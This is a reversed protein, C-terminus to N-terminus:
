RKTAQPLWPKCPPRGVVVRRACGPRLCPSTQLDAPAQKRLREDEAEADSKMQRAEDVAADLEANYEDLNDAIAELTTDEILAWNRDTDGRIVGFDKLALREYENVPRNFGVIVPHLDLNGENLVRFAKLAQDPLQVSIM